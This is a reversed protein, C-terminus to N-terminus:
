PALSACLRSMDPVEKTLGAELDFAYSKCILKAARVEREYGSARDDPTVRNILSCGFLFPIILLTKM